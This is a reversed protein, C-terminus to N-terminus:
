YDIDDLTIVGSGGTMYVTDGIVSRGLDSTLVVAMNAVEAPTVLREIPSRPSNLEGEQDIMSTLCQGPAIANVVIGKACLKKALGETFARIGWKSLTYPMTAPRLSSSSAINLINGRVNRKQLDDAVIQTLFYVGKLNTDMVADYEAESISGFRNKDSVGANNVLIDISKDRLVPRIRDELDKVAAIDVACVDVRTDGCGTAEILAKRAQNLTNQDRGCIVVSAGANIFAEAIAYGLGRSGGTILASRGKLLESQLVPVYVPVQKRLKKLLRKIGAM